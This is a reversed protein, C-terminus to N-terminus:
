SVMAEAVRRMLVFAPPILFGIVAAWFLVVVGSWVRGLVGRKRPGIEVYAADIVKSAADPAATEVERLRLPAPEAM